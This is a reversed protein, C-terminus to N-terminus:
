GAPRLLRRQKLFDVLAYGGIADNTTYFTRGGNVKAIQEVFPYQTRELDLAFTNITIGAKTCRYVEAMTLQLTIPLPPYNFFPIGSSPDIHATPEGDTVVIIQKTGRERQLMKRSLMLAHQLNTGYIYDWMLTPIEEPKVEHAIESFGVIGLYDRPFKMSVLSQLAMALKKAPVFNDRMPMSMSLDLCLVTASRTLAENEIVEFDDPHLRVPVGNGNRRVANHVTASLDLNLPDGFEYPKTTEERDHGQGIWTSSHDGINKSRVQDFLDQLAQRGLKRIGAATMEVKGGENKLIGADEMTKALKALQELHRAADDSLNRRVQELDIENLMAPSIRGQLMEELRELQSLQSAVDTAESMKLGGMGGMQFRRQWGAGPFAQELNRNLRDMQWQLDPDDMVANFLSSLHARQEPTMSNWMAQAAAMREALQELLDDLNEAGPFLDGFQEKFQEFSETTDDGRERQEILDNLAAMADRMRAMAEPDMEGLAESMGQFYTDAVEKRLEEVMAEFAERAESSVFDYHQMSQVKSPLDSPLLDLAMRREATVESTVEQRRDDGSNAAEEDLEDIASREMEEIERMRDLYDAYEDDPDGITELEYKRERLEELLDRLGRVQEGDPGEFGQRLLRELAAEIDGTALYDDTLAALLGDADVENFEQSGDWKRYDYEAGM